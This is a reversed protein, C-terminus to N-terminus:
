NKWRPRLFILTLAGSAFLVWTAPEPIIKNPSFAIADILHYPTFDTVIADTYYTSFRLEVTQGAFRSVDASFLGNGLPGGGLPLPEGNIRLAFPLGRNGFSISNADSPVDGVQVLSYPDSIPRGAGVFNPVIALSYRGVPTTLPYNHDVLTVYGFDARLPYYDFGVPSTSPTGTTGEAFQWGPILDEGPGYLAPLGNWTTPADPLSRLTNTNAEEFDLNRFPAGPAAQVFLWLSALM